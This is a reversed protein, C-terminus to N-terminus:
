GLTGPSTPTPVETVPAEVEVVAAATPAQAPVPQQEPYQHQVVTVPKGKELMYTGFGQTEDEILQRIRDAQVTLPEGTSSKKIEGNEDCQYIVSGKSIMGKEALWANFLRDLAILLENNLPVGESSYGRLLQTLDSIAIDLQLGDEVQELVQQMSTEALKQQLNQFDTLVENSSGASWSNKRTDSLCVNDVFESVKELVPQCTDMMKTLRLKKEFQEKFYIAAESTTVVEMINLLSQKNPLYEPM